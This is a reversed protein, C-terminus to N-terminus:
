KRLFDCFHSEIASSELVINDQGGARALGFSLMHELANQGKSATIRWKTETMKAEGTEVQLVVM